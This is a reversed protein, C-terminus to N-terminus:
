KAFKGFLKHRLIPDPDVNGDGKRRMIFLKGFMAPGLAHAVRAHEVARHRPWQRQYGIFVRINGIESRSIREADRSVMWEHIAVLARRRDDAFGKQYQVAM